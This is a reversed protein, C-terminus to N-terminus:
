LHSHGNMERLSLLEREVNGKGYCEFTGVFGGSKLPLCLSGQLTGGEKELLALSTKREVYGKSTSVFTGCFGGSKLPSCLSGQFTGGELELLALSTEREVYGKGSVVVKSLCASCPRVFSQPWEDM